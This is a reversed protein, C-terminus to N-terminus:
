PMSFLGRGTLPEYTATWKDSEGTSIIVAPECTGTPWFTWEPAPNKVLAAPFQIELKQKEAFDMRSVGKEENKDKPEQPRVAIGDKDWILVYARRETVSRNQAERALADFTDFAHRAKRDEVIGQISPVAAVAILAAIFVALCIELLTFARRNGSMCCMVRAMPSFLERRSKRGSAAISVPM